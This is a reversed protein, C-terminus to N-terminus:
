QIARSQLLRVAVGAEAQVIRRAIRAAARLDPLVANPPFRTGGSMPDPKSRQAVEQLVGIDIVHATSAIAASLSHAVFNGCDWERQFDCPRPIVLRVSTTLAPPASQASRPPIVEM